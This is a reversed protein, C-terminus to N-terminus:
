CDRKSNFQAVVVELIEPRTIGVTFLPEAWGSHMSAIRPTYVHHAHKNAKLFLKQFNNM